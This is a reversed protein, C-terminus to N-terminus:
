HHFARDEISISERVLYDSIRRKKGFQRHIFSLHLSDTDIYFIKFDKYTEEIGMLDPIQDSEIRIYTFGLSDKVVSWSGVLSNGCNDLYSNNDKVGGNINFTQRYELFCPGMNMRTKGNYRRALKWVKTSDGSILNDLNAPPLYPSPTNKSCSFCIAMCLTLIFTMIRKM